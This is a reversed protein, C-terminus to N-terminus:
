RLREVFIVMNTMHYDALKINVDQGVKVKGAGLAPILLEGIMHNRDPSISFVESSTNVYM